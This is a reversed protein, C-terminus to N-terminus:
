DSLLEEIAQKIEASCPEVQPAFRRRVQGDPGVLFKEFNWQVDGGSESGPASLGDLLWAYLPARKAGNVDIKEFLPFSVGFQIRTFDRIEASTGPEQAMFQNCPFALVELGQRRYEDYLRQLGEYQPTLGCRSAVNVVLVAKGAYDSLSQMDGDIDMMEFTFLNTM